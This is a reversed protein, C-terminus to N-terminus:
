TPFTFQTVVGRDIFDDTAGSDILCPVRQGKIIADFTILVKRLDPLQEEPSLEGLETPAQAPRDGESVPIDQAVDRSTAAHPTPDDRGSTSPDESVSVTSMVVYVRRVPRGKVFLRVHSVFECVKHEPLLKWWSGNPCWPVVFTGQVSPVDRRVRRFVRLLKNLQGVQTGLCLVHDREGPASKVAPVTQNTDTPDVYVPDRLPACLVHTFMGVQSELLQKVESELMPVM